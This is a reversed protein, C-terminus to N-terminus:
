RKPKGPPKKLSWRTKSECWAWLKQRELATDAQRTKDSMDIERVQRDHWFLGSSQAVDPEVSLWVLTDAGEAPTRLLGLPGLFKSFGPLAENIGPTNVWGPHLSHFILGSNPLRQAWMENLIVQARKARAYQQAGQYDSDSMELAAVDLGQTYMGGSSMTLIRAQGNVLSELLLGTLLFPTSVMLEVSLDRGSAAYRRENYLAGANHALVHISPFQAYLEIAIRQVDPLSGLDGIVSHIQRNGTQRMLQEIQEDAKNADRAVLVLTAGLSSYLQAAAAGIGSTGGTLVVVRGDFSYSQLDPWDFLRSRIRTGLSSFSPVVTKEMANDILRKIMPVDAQQNEQLRHQHFAEFDINFQIQRYM